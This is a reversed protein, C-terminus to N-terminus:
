PAVQTHPLGSPPRTHSGSPTPPQCLCSRPPQQQNCCAPPPSLQRHTKSMACAASSCLPSAGATYRQASVAVATLCSCRGCAGECCLGSGAEDGGSLVLTFSGKEKIAAAAAEVVSKALGAAANKATAYVVVQANAQGQYQFQHVGVDIGPGKSTSIPAVTGSAMLHAGMVPPIGDAWQVAPCGAFAHHRNCAVIALAWLQLVARTCPVSIRQQPSANQSPSHRTHSGHLSVPSYLAHV